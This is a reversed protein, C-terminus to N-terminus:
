LNQCHLGGFAKKSLSALRLGNLVRRYHQREGSHTGLMVLTSKIGLILLAECAQVPLDQSLSVNKCQGSQTFVLNM